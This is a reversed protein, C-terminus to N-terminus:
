ARFDQVPIGANRLVSIVQQEMARLNLATRILNQANDLLRHRLSADDALRIIAHAWGEQGVGLGADMSLVEAYVPGDSALTVSGALTYETWKTYTRYSNFSTLRLPALGVDWRLGKLARLFTEYDAAPPHVSVRDGYRAFAQPTEISGFLELTIQPREDLARCIAPVVMELDLRHNRTGQYGIKLGGGPRPRPPPALEDPDACSQLQAVRMPTRIGVNVLAESLPHTSIYLLDSGDLISRLAAVREPRNHRRVKDAGLDAPVELLFDDLHGIVAIRGRRAAAILAAADPGAFRSFIIADPRLRGLAAEFWLAGGARGLSTESIAWIVAQGATALRRLPRFLHVEQTAAPQDCLVILRLRARRPDGLIKAVGATAAHGLLRTTLRGWGTM